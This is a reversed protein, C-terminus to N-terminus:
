ELCVWVLMMLKQKIDYECFVSCQFIERPIHSFQHIIQNSEADFQDVAYIYLFHPGYYLGSTSVRGTFNNWSTAAFSMCQHYTIHSSDISTVLCARSNPDLDRISAHIKFSSGRFSFNSINNQLFIDPSRNSVVEYEYFLTNSPTGLNDTAFISVNHKSSIPYDPIKFYLMFIISKSNCFVTTKNYTQTEDKIELNVNFDDYIKLEIYSEDGPYYKLKMMGLPQLQPQKNVFLEIDLSTKTGIKNTISYLVHFTGPIAPLLFEDTFNYDQGNDERELITKEEGDFTRVITAFEDKGLSFLTLNLSINTNTSYSPQIPSQLVLSYGLITIRVAGHGSNGITTETLSYQSPISLNGALNKPDSLVKNVYSSGGAGASASQSGSAGGFYGSGGGSAYGGKVANGGYFQGGNVEPYVKTTGGKTQTGGYAKNDLYNNYNEGEHGELGGGFGGLYPKQYYISLAGYGPGGGGAAFIIGNSNSPSNLSIFSMGGGSTHFYNSDGYGQGGQGYTNRTCKGSEGVIGKEGPFIYLITKETLTLIGSAYGGKGGQIDYPTTLNGGQAGWCELKYRGPNADYRFPQCNNPDTCSYRYVIVNPAVNEM